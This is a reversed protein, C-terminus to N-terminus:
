EFRDSLHHEPIKLTDLWIAPKRQDAKSVATWIGSEPVINMRPNPLNCTTKFASNHRVYYDSTQVTRTTYSFFFVDQIKCQYLVWFSCVCIFIYINLRFFQTISLVIGFFHMFVSLMVKYHGSCKKLLFQVRKNIQISSIWRFM